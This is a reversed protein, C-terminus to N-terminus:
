GGSPRVAKTWQSTLRRVDGGEGHVDDRWVTSWVAVGNGQCGRFVTVVVRGAIFAM